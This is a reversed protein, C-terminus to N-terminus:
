IALGVYTISDVNSDSYGRDEDSLKITTKMSIDSDIEYRCCGFQIKEAVHIWEIRDEVM